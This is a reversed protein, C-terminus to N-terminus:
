LLYLVLQLIKGTFGCYVKWMSIITICVRIGSDCRKICIGNIIIWIFIMPKVITELGDTTPFSHLIYLPERRAM